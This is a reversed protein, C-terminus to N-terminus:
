TILVYDICLYIVGDRSSFCTALFEYWNQALLRLQEHSEEMKPVVKSILNLSLPLRPPSRGTTRNVM